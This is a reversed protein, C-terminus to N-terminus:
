YISQVLAQALRLILGFFKVKEVEQSVTLPSSGVMQEQHFVSLHGVIEGAMIPAQRDQEISIITTLDLEKGREVTIYFDNPIVVDVSRPEGNPCDFNAVVSQKPYFEMSQYMRFGHDLLARVESERETENKHGLSVAILRLNDRLATAVLCYGAETTFGTKMGDVGYYRRLLKNPNWLVPIKTSDARMTYEYTSVYDMLKPVSLAHRALAAVDQAAMLNPEGEEMPLGTSNVFKTSNLGLERARENMREVFLEESGAMFEAVAVTADNASGVAMAYLLEGLTLQEGAELWIRTGRKSAALPSATILDSMSIEERDLAELVIVLSMLKSISAVPLMETSNHELFVRGSYPDMLLAAKGNYDFASVPYFLVTLCLCVLTISFWLRM